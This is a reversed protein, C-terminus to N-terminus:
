FFDRQKNKKLLLLAKSIQSLVEEAKIPFAFVSGFQMARVRDAPAGIDPVLPFFGFRVAESLTYCYTEPWEHLFLAIKGRAEAALLPLTEATFRGTITVNGAALLDEDLSTYGIVRFNLAPHTMRARRAIELLKQSGKHPGLAGLLVIEEADEAHRIAPREPPTQNEPHPIVGVKLAPLGRRLYAAASASPAIVQTFSHLLQAFLERHAAAGIGTLRSAHHVGGIAICRECTKTPAVSCFEGIADIFTVRPCLAYFDHLYYRSTKGALWDPLKSIFAAPFGLLQHVLIEAPAASDLLEFLAGAEDEAFRAVFLPTEASLAMAGQARCQLSLKIADGLGRAQWLDEEAKASGGGLSNSIVLVFRTGSQRARQLRWGDLAWRASRLGQKAEFEELLPLYESYRRALRDLNRRLLQNKEPGFSLSGRHQVFVGAAAVHRYGLNAARVCFDNEECYGRGFSADFQGVARLVESKILMCFGHGTPADLCKGTNKLLAVAALEAWSCDTLHERRLHHGPYSFITADNSLATVTGIRDCSHAIAHLEEFAGPFVIADANLLLVDNGGAFGFGRNVAGIFGLNEPNTLVFLNPQEAYTKLLEAMGPEPSADDILIVRNIPATRQALVSSICERTADLDAYIPIIIDLRREQPRKIPQPQALFFGDGTRAAGLYQLLASGILAKDAAGIGAAAQAMRTARQAAIISSEKGAVLYPGAFLEIDSGRLRLSIRVPETAAEAEAEAEAPFSAAFGAGLSGPYLERVDQRKMSCSATAIAAGNRFIEIQLRRQPADPALLWGGCAEPTLRDLNGQLPLTCCAETFKVGDALVSLRLEGAGFCRNHLEIEFAARPAGSAPDRFPRGQGVMAGHQNVVCIGPVRWDAVRERVWGKLVGADVMCDGDYRGPGLELPSGPLEVGDAFVRFNKRAACSPLELQFALDARGLKLAALDPRELAAQGTAVLKGNETVTIGCHGDGTVPLAWGTVDGGQMGDVRGRVAM